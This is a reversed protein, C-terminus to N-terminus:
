AGFYQLQVKNMLQSMFKGLVCFIVYTEETEGKRDPVYCFVGLLM